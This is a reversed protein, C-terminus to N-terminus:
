GVISVGCSRSRCNRKVSPSLKKWSSRLFKAESISQTESAASSKFDSILLIFPPVRKMLRDKSIRVLIAQENVDTNLCGGFQQGLEFHIDKTRPVEFDAAPM